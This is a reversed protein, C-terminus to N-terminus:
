CVMFPLKRKPFIDKIDINKLLSHNNRFTGLTQVDKFLIMDKMVNSALFENM